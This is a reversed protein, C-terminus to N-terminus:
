SPPKCPLSTSSRWLARRNHPPAPAHPKVHCSPVLKRLSRVTSVAHTRLHKSLASRLLKGNIAFDFPVRKDLALLQNVVESLGARNLGAPVALPTEPVAFQPDSAVLRVGVQSLEESAMDIVSTSMCQVGCCLEDPADIPLILHNADGGRM